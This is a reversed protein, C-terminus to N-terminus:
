NWDIKLTKLGTEKKRILKIQKTENQTSKVKRYACPKKLSDLTMVMNKRVTM